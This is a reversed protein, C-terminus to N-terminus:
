FYEKPTIIFIASRIPCLISWDYIYTNFEVGPVFITVLPFPVATSQFALPIMSLVPDCFISPCFFKRCTGFKLPNSATKFLLLKLPKPLAVFEKIVFLETPTAISRPSLLRKLPFYEIINAPSNLLNVPFWEKIPAPLPFEPSWDENDRIPAPEWFKKFSVSFEDINTPFVLVTLPELLAEINAPCNFKILPASSAAIPPPACFWTLDNSPKMPPPFELMTKVLAPAIKPPFVFMDLPKFEITPPPLAFREKPTFEAIKPPLLLETVAPSEEVTMPPCFLSM